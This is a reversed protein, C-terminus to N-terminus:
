RGMIENIASMRKGISLGKFPASIKVGTGAFAQITSDLYEKGGLVVIEDFSGLKKRKVQEALKDTSIPQTSKKKFTVNYDEIKDEPDLFGYKASLIVWSDGFREAYARQKKFYTSTYADKAKILRISADDKWIKRGGCQAVVLKKM